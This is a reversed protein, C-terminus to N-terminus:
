KFLLRTNSFFTGSVSGTDWVPKQVTNNKRHIYTRVLSVDPYFQIPFLLITYHFSVQGLARFQSSVHAAHM